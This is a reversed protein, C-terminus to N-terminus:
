RRRVGRWVEKWSVLGAPLQRAYARLFRCWATRPVPGDAEVSTALRALEAVAGAPPMHAAMRLRGAGIVYTKVRAVEEVVLVNTGGLDRHVMGWAHMRGVLEGLSVACQGIRRMREASERRALREGYDHLNEAGEIRATALYVRQESWRHRPMCIALPRPTAIKREFLAQGFYWDRVARNRRFLAKWRSPEEYRTYLVSTEGQSSELRAEVTVRKRGLRIPRDLNERLLREPDGALERLVPEPIDRVGHVRVSRCGIVQYNRNTRMSRKDRDHHNRWAHQRAATELQAIATRREPPRLEPRGALYTRWFHLRETRTTSSWWDASLMALSARSARWSLPGSLGVGPVDILRFAFAAEGGAAENHGHDSVLVNGAHFDNHRIGARHVAAVFQAFGNLFRRRSAGGDQTGDGSLQETAYQHVTWSPEVAETVLFSERVALGDHVDAWAVPRVTAVGRGAIAVTREWERRAASARILEGVARWFGSPRDHKVYCARGDLAVRYVTRHSGHKVVQVRGEAQWAELRLGEPGLLVGEWDPLVHWCTKGITRRVWDAM